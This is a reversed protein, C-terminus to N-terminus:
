QAFCCVLLATERVITRPDNKGRLKAHITTNPQEQNGEQGPHQDLLM